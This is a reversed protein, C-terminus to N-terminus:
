AGKFGWGKGKLGSLGPGEDEVDESPGGRGEQRRRSGGRGGGENSDPVEDQGEEVKSFGRKVRKEAQPGRRADSVKLPATRRGLGQSPCHVVAGAGDRPGLRFTKAKPCAM